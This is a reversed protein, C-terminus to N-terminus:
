PAGAAVPVLPVRPAAETFSAIVGTLLLVALVLAAAIRYWAFPVFDHRTVWRLLWHVVALAVAFSVVFGIAIIGARDATITDGHKALKLASAGLMAPIALFFSFETAARRDIGLLMGGLITAGSRSTGPLLIALVQCCGVGFATRLPLDAADHHVPEKRRREIAIIALGGLALTAIVVEPRFLYREMTRELSLGVVVAPLTGVVLNRVFRWAAPERRVMGRLVQWLRTRYYACVALIAGLQIVILFVDNPDHFGLLQEAVILHGTSSVPIFETLGEVVGLIVAALWAEM